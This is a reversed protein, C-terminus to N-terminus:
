LARDGALAVAVAVRDEYAAASRRASDDARYRAAALARGDARYEAASEARARADVLLLLVRLHLRARLEADYEVARHRQGLEPPLLSNIFTDASGEPRAPASPPGCAFPLARAPERGVKLM